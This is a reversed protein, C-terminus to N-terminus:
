KFYTAIGLSLVVSERDTSQNELSLEEICFLGPAELIDALLRKLKAYTAAVKFHTTYKSLPLISAISPKFTMKEVFLGHRDLIDNLERVRDTFTAKEPLRDMFTRIDERAKLYGAATENGGTARLGRKHAYLEQLQGIRSRWTTAFFAYFLINGALLILCASWLLRGFPVATIIGKVSMNQFV